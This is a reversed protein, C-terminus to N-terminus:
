KSAWNSGKKGFDLRKMKPRNLAWTSRAKNSYNTLERSSGIEVLKANTDMSFCWIKVIWYGKFGPVSWHPFYHNLWVGNLLPAYSPTIFPRGLAWHSLGIRRFLAYFIVGCGNKWWSCSFGLSFSSGTGFSIENCM